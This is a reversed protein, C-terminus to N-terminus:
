SRCAPEDNQSDVAIRSEAIDTGGNRRGTEPLIAKPRTAVREPLKPDDTHDDREPSPQRAAIQEDRTGACCSRPAFTGNPQALLLFLRIILTVRDIQLKSRPRNKREKVDEVIRDSVRRKSPTQERNSLRSMLRLLHRLTKAHAQTQWSLYWLHGLNVM